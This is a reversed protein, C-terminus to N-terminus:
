KKEGVQVDLGGLIPVKLKLINWVVQYGFVGIFIAAFYGAESPLGLWKIIQDAGAALFCCITADFFWKRIPTAEHIHRMVALSAAIFGYGMDRYYTMFLQQITTPMDSM